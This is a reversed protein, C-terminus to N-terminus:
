WDFVLIDMIVRLLKKRPSPQITIITKRHTMALPMLLMKRRNSRQSWFGCTLSLRCRVACTPITVDPTNSSQHNGQSVALWCQSYLLTWHLSKSDRSAGLDLTKFVIDQSVLFFFRLCSFSSSMRWIIILWWRVALLMHCRKNVTVFCCKFPWVYSFPKLFFLECHHRTFMTKIDHDRWTSWSYRWHKHNCYTNFLGIFANCNGYKM